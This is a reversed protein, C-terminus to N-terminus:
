FNKITSERKTDFVDLKEAVRHLSMETNDHVNKRRKAEFLRRISIGTPWKCWYFDHKTEVRNCPYTKARINTVAVASPKKILSSSNLKCNLKKHYHFHFSWRNPKISLSVPIFFNIILPRSDNDKFGGSGQIEFWMKNRGLRKLKSFSKKRKKKIKCM